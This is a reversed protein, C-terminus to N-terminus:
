KKDENEEFIVDSLGINVQYNSYTLFVKGVEPEVSDNKSKDPNSKKEKGLNGPYIGADVTFSFVMSSPLWFGQKTKLYEFDITYTGQPKKTSEVKLIINKKTDIWLTSLIVDTNSDLPIVKIVTSIKGNITDERVYFASYNYNLFALPSFNLGSKPLLAFNESDIHFKDPKKFYVIAERDPMKLFDVDVKVKVDVQYDEIKEFEKKVNELIPDPDKIQAHLSFNIIVTLLFLKYTM